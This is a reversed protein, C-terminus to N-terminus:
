ARLAEALLPHVTRAALNATNIKTKTYKIWNNFANHRLNQTKNRSVAESLLKLVHGRKWYGLFAIANSRQTARQPLAEQTSTPPDEHPGDPMGQLHPTAATTIDNAMALLNSSSTKLALVIPNSGADTYSKNTQKHIQHNNIHKPANRRSARTGQM